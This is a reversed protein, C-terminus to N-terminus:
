IKICLYKCIPFNSLNQPIFKQSNYKEILKAPNVNGFIGFVQSNGFTERWFNRELLKEGFTERTFTEVFLTTM